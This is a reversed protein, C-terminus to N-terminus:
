VAAPPPHKRPRGRPRKPPTPPPDDFSSFPHQGAALGHRTRNDNAATRPMVIAPGPPETPPEPNLEALMVDVTRVAAMYADRALIISYVTPAFSTVKALVAAFELSFSTLEILFIFWKLTPDEDSAKKLLKLQALLGNDFPVYNPAKVIAARIADGRGQTLRALADKLPVLRAKEEALTREFGPLQDHAQQRRAAGGVDPKERASELRNRAADLSRTIEQLHAQANAVQELAARRRPGAGARGSNGPSAKIGALEDSAFKQASNLNEEAKAKQALLQTIEQQLSLTSGPDIEAQRLAEVQAALTAVHATEARVAETARAIEADIRASATAILLANSARWHNEIQFSIDTILVLSLLIATLLSLGVSLVARVALALGHKVRMWIGGSIDLGGIKLQEIGNYFWGSRIFLYSDLLTLFLGLFASALVLEPRFTGGPLAFIRHSTLSFLGTVYLFVFAQIEGVALANDIDRQPCQHLTEEDVAAIKLLLKQFTTFKVQRHNPDDM